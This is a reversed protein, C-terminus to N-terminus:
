AAAIHCFHYINNSTSLCTPSKRISIDVWYIVMVLMLSFMVSPLPSSLLITKHDKSMEDATGYRDITPRLPNHPHPVDM